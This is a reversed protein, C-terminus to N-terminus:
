PPTHTLNYVVVRRRCAALGLKAMQTLIGPFFVCTPGREGKAMQTPPRPSVQDPKQVARDGLPSVPMDASSISVNAGGALAVPNEGYCITLLNNVVCFLSASKDLHLGSSTASRGSEPALKLFHRARTVERVSGSHGGPSPLVLRRRMKM